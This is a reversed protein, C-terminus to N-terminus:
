VKGKRSAGTRGRDGKKSCVSFGESGGEILRILGGEGLRM